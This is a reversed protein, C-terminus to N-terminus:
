RRRSMQVCLVAAPDAAAAKIAVAAPLLLLGRADAAQAISHAHRMATGTDATSTTCSTAPAATAAHPHQPPCRWSSATQRPNSSATCTATVQVCLVAAAAFPQVQVDHVVSSYSTVQLLLLVCTSTCIGCWPHYSTFVHKNMCQMCQQPMSHGCAFCHIPQFGCCAVDSGYRCLGVRAADGAGTRLLPSVGELPRQRPGAQVQLLVCCCLVSIFCPKPL